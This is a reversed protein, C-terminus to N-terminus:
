GDTHFSRVFGGAEVRLDARRSGAGPPISDVEIFEDAAHDLDGVPGLGDLTPIGVAATWCGDSVGGTNVEGVPTGLM